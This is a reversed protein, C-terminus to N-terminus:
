RKSRQKYRRAGKSSRPPKHPETRRPDYVLMSRDYDMYAKKLDDGGIEAFGKAIATRCAEAQGSYGGGTVNIDIDYGKVLEEAVKVAETIRLVNMRDMSVGLARGNIKIAGTGKKFRARAVAKKRKGVSVFPVGIKKKKKVTKKESM